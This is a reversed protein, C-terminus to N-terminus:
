RAREHAQSRAVAFTLHYCFEASAAVVTTVVGGAALVHM